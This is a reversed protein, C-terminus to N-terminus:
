MIWALFLPVTVLAWLHTLLLGGAIFETDGGFRESFVVSTMASPMVVVIGVVGRAVDDLPLWQLLPLLLLPIIVLRIVGLVWLRWGMMTRLRLVAFRSGAIIVAVGIAAQGLTRAVFVVSEVLEALMGTWTIGWSDRVLVWALSALLTVFPPSLLQKVYAAGTTQRTFLLIGATWLVLEYGIASFVLLAVGREGFLFLVLPMPLFLYNNMLCHFLFARATAPAIAGLFRVAILGLLLGTLAIGLVCLPLLINAALDAASLSTISTFILAPYIIDMVLRALERTGQGSLIQRKRAYFGCAILGFIALIQLAFTM